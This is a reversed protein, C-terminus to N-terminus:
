VRSGEVPRLVLNTINSVADKYTEDESLTKWEADARFKDWASKLAKEDEFALMYTLNPLKIGALTQGFFVPNLGVRRFIDIEGGEEFMRVKVMAREGSHSEYTRLQVVRGAAKTPVQVQPFTAFARLLSADYRVYAPDSKPATLIALGAQVFELDLALRQPLGLLSELTKHPLLVYLDNPDASLKLEPNDKALLKFAGVPDVGARAIAPVAAAGLFQEFAQQKDASAFHYVRLEILQRQPQNGAPAGADPAAPAAQSAALGIAAATSAALFERRQM